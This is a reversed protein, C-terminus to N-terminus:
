STREFDPKKQQFLFRQPDYAESQALKTCPTFARVAAFANRWSTRRQGLLLELIDLSCDASRGTLQLPGEGAQARRGNCDVCEVRPAHRCLRMPKEGSQRLMQLPQFLGIATTRDQHIPGCIAKAQALGSGLVSM